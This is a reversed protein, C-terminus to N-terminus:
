ERKFLELEDSYLALVETVKGNLDLKYLNYTGLIEMSIFLSTGRDNFCMGGIKNIKRDSKIIKFRKFKKEFIYFLIESGSDMAVVFTDRRGSTAHFKLNELSGFPYKVRIERRNEIEYLLISEVEFSIVFSFDDKTFIKENSVMCVEEFSTIDSKISCLKFSEREKKVFFIRDIDDRYVPKIIEINKINRMMKYFEEDQMDYIYLGREKDVECDLLIKKSSIFTYEYIKYTFNLIESESNEIMNYLCLFDDDFIRKVYSILNKGKVWKILRYETDAEFTVQRINRGDEFCMYINKEFESTRMVMGISFSKKYNIGLGGQIELLIKKNDLINIRSEIVLAEYELRNTRFLNEINIGEIKKSVEIERFFLFRDNIMHLSEDKNACVIKVKIEIIFLIRNEDIEVDIINLLTMSSIIEKISNIYPPTKIFEEKQILSFFDFYKDELNSVEVKSIM